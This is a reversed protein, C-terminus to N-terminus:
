LVDKREIVVTFFPQKGSDTPMLKLPGNFTRYLTDVHPGGYIRIRVIVEANGDCGSLQERLEAVTM